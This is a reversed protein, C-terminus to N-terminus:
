ARMATGCRSRRTSRRGSRATRDSRCAESPSTLLRPRAPRRHPPWPSSAADPGTLRIGPVAARIASAYSEFDAYYAAANAEYFNPENGVEIALLSRGFIRQAYAAEDAARAPDRHKLNVALIVKWGTAEAIEALHQLKAPTITGSTAWSPATEGTSTWFTGDGSNGGVRLVGAPGLTRLYGALDTAAYDDAAVTAAGFSLGVFGAPLRHGTPDPHVTITLGAGSDQAAAVPAPAVADASVADGGVAAAQDGAPTGSARAAGVGIVATTALAAVGLTAATVARGRTSIKPSHANM